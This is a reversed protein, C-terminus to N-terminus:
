LTLNLGLTYTRPRPYFNNDIGSFIEPDMGTYKTIVFVNQCNLSIRLDHNKNKTISGYNYTLGINDLKLFSANQLYYNSFYQNNTFRSYLVESPANALNKNPTIISRTVEYNSAVNNYMYNGINARAVFNLTWKEYSVSNSLGFIWTPYPSKNKVLDNQNTIGDRNQDVYLAEIPKGKEDYVQQYLYFTNPASGVADIQVTNGTGGSIGGTANGIFNPDPVLTLNTIKFKNYSANFDLEWTWENNRVPIVNINFDVGQDEMSGINTTEKNSFNSGSPISVNALLDTTKKYYYDVSGNIRSNLFGFDIGADYTATTEWRLNSIYASPTYMNYYTGGFPYLSGPTSLFYTPIYGYLGIGAQNGTEGYSLRLNLQSVASSNKLFNERNMRWTFAASPFKGWRYDPGFRSSGDTRISGMLVYKENLTYILRGYYSILTYETPNYFYLPPNNAIDTRIANTASRQTYSYNKTLNDYYGYGAVANINSKISPIDKNYGLYFESTLNQYKQLYPTNYGRLSDVSNNYSQAANAPIFTNGNGKAIDYGLNLNAHLGDIFPLAYDFQINGFSREVHSRGNNQMLLAVPNRNSLNNLTSDSVGLWEYYGGFKSGQVYVPQTPDFTIASGIAGQNAFRTNTATGHLNLDIKLTNNFLHPNLNLGASFRQLNDTKLIGNQDLYEGNIRYPINKLSGSLSINNDTTIATQFIQKQWDTNANGMLAKQEETGNENVFNRFQSASLVPYEKPLQSVGLDTSFNLVPKGSKGHKTTILIVGNSARSGYIATAAADKLITFSEIDNPNILNLGNASGALPTGSGNVGTSLPVGDVVILPDNSATLSAGGRIRIVSGSGPAGGNSTISVGSVKGAILQEPTTVTGQQFDKSSITSISGTLDKKKATGYGIVVVEGLKEASITMPVNLSTEGNVPVEKEAYGASTFVLTSTPSAAISFSGNVDTQTANRTGKVTVTVGQIGYGGKSDTVKGTVVNQANASFAALFFFLLGPIQKAIKSISKRMLLIQIKLTNTDIKYDYFLIHIEYV